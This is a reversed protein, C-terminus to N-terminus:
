PRQATLPSRRRTRLRRLIAPRLSSRRSSSITLFRRSTSRRPRARPTSARTREAPSRGSQAHSRRLIPRRSLARTLCPKAYPMRYQRSTRIARPARRSCGSLSSVPPSSCSSQHVGSYSLSSSSEVSGALLSASKTLREASGSSIASDSSSPAASSLLQNESAAAM